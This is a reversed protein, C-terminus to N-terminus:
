SEPVPRGMSEYISEILDKNQTANENGPDAELVERYVVLAPRYKERAPLDAEHTLFNAYANGAEIFAATSGETAESEYDEKATEYEAKLDELNGSPEDVPQIQDPASAPEQSAEPATTCGLATLLLIAAFASRVCMNHIAARTEATRRTNPWCGSLM